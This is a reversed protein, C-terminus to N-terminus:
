TRRMSVFEHKMRAHTFLEQLTGVGLASQIRDSPNIHLLESARKILLEDDFAEAESAPIGFSGLLVILDVHDMENLTTVETVTLDKFVGESDRFWKVLQMFELLDLFGSRDADLEKFAAHFHVDRITAFKDSDILELGQKIEDMELRENSSRDLSHFAERIDELGAHDFGYEGALDLERLLRQQRFQESLYQAIGRLAPLNFEDEGYPDTACVIQNLSAHEEATIVSLGLETLLMPLEEAPLKDM